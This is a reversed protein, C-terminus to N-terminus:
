KEELKVLEERYRDIVAQIAAVVEAFLQPQDELWEICVDSNFALPDTTAGPLILNGPIRWGVIAARVLREGYYSEGGDDSLKYLQFGTPRRVLFQHGGAEIWTERAARLRELDTAM